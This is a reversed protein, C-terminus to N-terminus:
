IEDLEPIRRFAISAGATGKEEHTAGLHLTDKGFKKNIADMVKSVEDLKPNEFFSFQHFGQKILENFAVTVRLPKGRVPYTQWLEELKRMLTVTDRVEQFRASNEWYTSPNGLFKVQVSLNKAYYEGKRLRLCLKSLLKKAVAHAGARSRKEPPLVHQHSLSNSVTPPLAVEEGRLWLYVREGWVGGWVKKMEEYNLSCLQKVTTIGQANLHMEMKEGVGLLDRLKLSYLKHPLDSKLIATLGDPKQMDTAIKALYRNTSLGISGGIAEGVGERIAKKIKQALAIANELKQQSGTLRCAIEDISLVAEVPVCSEVVEVVKHHYRIYVDHRTDVLILGPCMRKADGVKTGTKVGYKKAPYSAAIVSTTDAFLPVVAVPKDRLRPNEQQECSAFFSNLDLYLWSVRSEKEEM